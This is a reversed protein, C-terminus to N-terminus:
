VLNWLYIGYVALGVFFLGVAVGATNYNAQAKAEEQAQDKVSQDAVEGCYRCKIAQDQIQEACTTCIKM